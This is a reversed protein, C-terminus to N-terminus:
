GGFSFGLLNSHCQSRICHKFTNHTKVDTQIKLDQQNETKKKFITVKTGKHNYRNSFMIKTINTSKM